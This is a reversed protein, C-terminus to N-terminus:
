NDGRLMTGVDRKPEVTAEVAEREM